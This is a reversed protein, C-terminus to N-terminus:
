NDTISSVISVTPIRGNLRELDGSLLNNEEEVTKLEQDAVVESEPYIPATLGDVSRNKYKDNKAM